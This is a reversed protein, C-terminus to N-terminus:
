ILYFRYKHTLLCNETSKLCLYHLLEVNPPKKFHSIGWDGHTEIHKLVLDHDDMVQIIQPGGVYSSKRSLREM